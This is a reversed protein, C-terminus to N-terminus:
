GAAQRRQLYRWRRVQPDDRLRAPYLRSVARVARQAARRGEAAPLGPRVARLAGEPNAWPARAIGVMAELTDKPAAGGTVAAAKLFDARWKDDAVTAFATILAGLTNLRVLTTNETSNIPDLLVKGWTGTVPDVLNPANGAAIRLGLPNGSIATGDIFRASTFVSAVTTLENVVVKEPPETGLVSMLALADGAGGKTTLYFVNGDARAMVVHFAFRGNSDTTAERLSEPSEEGATRWLTVTVGAMPQHGLMVTGEIGKADATQSMATIALFLTVIAATAALFRRRTFRHKEFNTM